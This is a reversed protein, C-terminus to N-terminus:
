RRGTRRPCAPPPALGLHRCLRVVLEPDCHEAELLAAVAPLDEGAAAALQAPSQGDAQMREFLRMTFRCVHCERDYLRRFDRCSLKARRYAELSQM